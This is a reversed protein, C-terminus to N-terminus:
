CIGDQVGEGRKRAGNVGGCEGEDEAEAMWREEEVMGMLSGEMGGM